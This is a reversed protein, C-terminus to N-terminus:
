LTGDPDSPPTWGARILMDQLMEPQGEDSVALCRALVQDLTELETWGSPWELTVIVAVEGPASM